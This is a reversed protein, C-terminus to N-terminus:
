CHTAKAQAEAALRAAEAKLQAEATLRASEIAKAQDASSLLM